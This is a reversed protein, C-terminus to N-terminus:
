QDKIKTIRRFRDLVVNRAMSNFLVECCVAHRDAVGANENWARKVRRWDFKSLTIKMRKQVHKRLLKARKGSM